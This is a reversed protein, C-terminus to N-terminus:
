HDSMWFCRSSLLLAVAISLDIFAVSVLFIHNSHAHKSLTAGLLIMLVMFVIFQPRFFQWLRPSKLRKIRALNKRCSKKFLLESKLLGLIVGGGISALLLLPDSKMAAAEVLLEGAKLFLVLSGVYWVSAAILTLSQHSVAGNKFLETM